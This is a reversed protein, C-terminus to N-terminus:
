KESTILEELLDDIERQVVEGYQAGLDLSDYMYEKVQSWTTEMDDIGGNREWRDYHEITAKDFRLPQFEDIYAQKKIASITCTFATFAEDSIAGVANLRAMVEAKSVLSGDDPVDAQIKKVMEEKSLGDYGLVIRNREKAAEGYLNISKPSKVTQRLNEWHQKGIDQYKIMNVLIKGRHNPFASEYREELLKEIEVDTMDSYDTKEHLEQLEKLKQRMPDSGTLTLTDTRVSGTSATPTITGEKDALLNRFSYALGTNAATTKKSGGGQYAASNRIDGLPHRYNGSLKVNM